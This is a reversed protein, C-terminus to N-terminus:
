SRLVLNSNIRSWNVMNDNQYQNIEIDTYSNFKEIVKIANKNLKNFYESEFMCLFDNSFSSKNYQVGLNKSFNIEILGKYELTSISDNILEHKTFLESIFM